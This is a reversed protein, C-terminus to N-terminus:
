VAAIIPSNGVYNESEMKKIMTSNGASKHSTQGIGADFRSCPDLDRYFQALEPKAEHLHGVNHEAPYNASRLLAWM